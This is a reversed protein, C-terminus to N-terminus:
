LAIATALFVVDVVGAAVATAGFTMAQLGFGPQCRALLFQQRDGIRMHDEGHGLLSPLDDPPMLLVQVVDQEAGCGLREEFERGIRM